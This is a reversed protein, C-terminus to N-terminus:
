KVENYARTIASMNADIIKQPFKSLVRKMSDLFYDLEFMGSVKVFAGLMPANPIARGITDLSIQMCDLVFVRDRRDELIPLEKILEDKTLHTTIIYKTALKENETINDSFALAPDIVLVYDPLMFKEHNLIQTDDIRNYARMAAGRKASGYLAFAQVEKGTSAVVDGLGKAGTVAGQGARSHWRIEVM